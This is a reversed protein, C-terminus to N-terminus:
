SVGDRFECPQSEDGEHSEPAPPEAPQQKLRRHTWAYQDPCERVFRELVALLRRTGAIEDGAGINEIEPEFRLAYGSDDPLRRYFFPVVAAGSVRALRCTATSAITSQGLFPLVASNRGSFKQDPAYWVVANNKLAKLMARVNNSAFGLHASHLRGRRQVENLLANRRPHFMFAFLPFTKKLPPGCIEVPTFHGTYLIVGRGKALAAFVHEEGEMKFDTLSEDVKGFWAFATEALCAGLSEFHRRVLEHVARSDLDPFCLEINREFARRHRAMLLCCVRGIAEHLRIAPRWPLSATLRFWGVLVWASWYRPAWFPRLSEM